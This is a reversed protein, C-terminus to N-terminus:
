KDGIPYKERESYGKEAIATCYYLRHLWVAASGRSIDGGEELLDAEVALSFGSEKFLM